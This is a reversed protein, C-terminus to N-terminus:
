GGEVGRGLLGHERAERLVPLRPRARRRGHLRRPRARRPVVSAAAHPAARRRVRAEDHDQGDGGGVRARGSGVYPLDALEFLGQVTGDEGYPGHLLPLVVDVDFTARATVPVHHSPDAVLEGIGEAPEGDVAFAVPLADAGSEIAVRAADALLWRGDTTIAVPVIEYREPDLARAVAVATARSVDHEASRGGFLLLVRLRRAM